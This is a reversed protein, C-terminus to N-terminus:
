IEKLEETLKELFYEALGFRVLKPFFVIRLNFILQQAKVLDIEFKKTGQFAM